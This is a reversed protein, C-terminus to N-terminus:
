ASINMNTIFEEAEITLALWLGIKWQDEIKRLKRRSWWKTNRLEERYAMDVDLHCVGYLSDHSRWMSSISKQFKERLDVHHMHKASSKESEFILEKICRQTIFPSDAAIALSM